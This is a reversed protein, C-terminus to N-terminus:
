KVERLALGAAVDWLGRRGLDRPMPLDRFPDSLECKLNLIKGISEALQPTAEGGGLVVRALPQGRFTVSHYRVCLALEGGLRDIIGRTAETVTRMVEPDQLDTRRDGSHRRLDAAEKPEMRLHRAVAADLNTGGLEVYKVFLMEDGQTIVVATRQHGVHVIMAREQADEQRRFQAAYCRILAAPEVDVARPILKGKEILDLTRQLIPRHCAFVIVERLVADGQRVDAAELYRFETEEVAFPVRGAAEQAIQRSLEAGDSKPIRINQLVLEKDGLCLVADRGVFKREILGRQLTAAAQEAYQEPSTTPPFEWRGAAILRTHDASFQVMKVSRSGLDIGIPGVRHLNIFPIM